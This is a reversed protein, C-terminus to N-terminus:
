WGPALSAIRRCIDAEALHCKTLPTRTDPLAGSATDRAEPYLHAPLLKLVVRVINEGQGARFAKNVQFADRITVAVNRGLARYAAVPRLKGCEGKQEREPERYVAAYELVKKLVDKVGVRQLKTLEFRKSLYGTQQRCYCGPRQNRKGLCTYCSKAEQNRSQSYCGRARHM